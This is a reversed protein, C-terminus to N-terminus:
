GGFDCEGREEGDVGEGAQEVVEATVGWDDSGGDVTRQVFNVRARNEAERGAVDARFEFVYRSRSVGVM